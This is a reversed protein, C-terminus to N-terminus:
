PLSDPKGAQVVTRYRFFASDLLRPGRNNLVLAWIMASFEAVLTAPILWPWRMHHRSIIARFPRTLFSILSKSGSWTRLLYYYEGVPHAPRFSTLYDGYSRTGGDKVRLHHICAKPEFYIRHGIRSIRNSFEAEFRYAAGVFNEDFGGVALAIDRQISFNGGMFQDVWKPEMSAFHFTDGALYDTEEQWPQIVRGAVLAAKTEQHAQLHAELLCSESIIDDDLFLVITSRAETLGVNMAHPISPSPLRVWRIAGIKNLELLTDFIKKDHKETQDIVLIEAPAPILGKVKQITNIL